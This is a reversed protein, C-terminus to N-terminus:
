GMEVYDLAPGFRRPGLLDKSAMVVVGLSRFGAGRAATQEDDDWEGVFKGNRYVTHLDGQFRHRIVDGASFAGFNEVVSESGAVRRVLRITSSDVGIGVGHTFAANSVRGFVTTRCLDGTISPGSGQSGVRFEIYGDDRDLTDIVCRQRSTILALALLGDPVALRCMGNVVGAKYTSAPGHDVWGAGLTPADDRNFDDRIGSASWVLQNGLYRAKIERDGFYRRRVLKGGIYRNPM